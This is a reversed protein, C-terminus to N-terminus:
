EEGDLPIQPINKSRGAGDPAPGPMANNWQGPTPTWIKPKNSTPASDSELVDISEIDKSKFDIASKTDDTTEVWETDSSKRGRANPAEVPLLDDTQSSEAQPEQSAAPAPQAQVAPAAPTSAAPTAKVKGLLQTVRGAVQEVHAKRMVGRSLLVSEVTADAGAHQLAALVGDWQEQSLIKNHTLLKGWLALAAPSTPM